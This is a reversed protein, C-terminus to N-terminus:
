GAGAADDRAFGGVAADVEPYRDALTRLAAVLLDLSLDTVDDVSLDGRDLQQVTLSDNFAIWGRLAADGRADLRLDDLGLVGLIIIIAELRAAEFIADVDPVDPSRRMTSLSSSRHEALYAFHRHMLLRVRAWPSGEDEDVHWLGREEEVQRRVAAVYLGRKDTFHYYLLGNAVGARTTVDDTYVEAYPREAFLELAADLIRDRRASSRRPRAQTAHDRPRPRDRPEPVVDLTTSPGRGVSASHIRNLYAEVEAGDAGEM